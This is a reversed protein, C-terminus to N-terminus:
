ESMTPVAAALYKVDGIEGAVNLRPLATVQVSGCQLRKGIPDQGLWYREALTRYAIVV